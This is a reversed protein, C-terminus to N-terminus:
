CDVTCLVLGLVELKKLKHCGDVPGIVGQFQAMNRFQEKVNTMQPETPWRIVAESLGCLFDVVDKVIVSVIARHFILTNQSTM